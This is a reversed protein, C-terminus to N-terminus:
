KNFHYLETSNNKIKKIAVFRILFVEAPPSMPLKQVSEFCNPRPEIIYPSFCRYYCNIYNGSSIRKLLQHTPTQRYEWLFRFQRYRPDLVKLFGVTFAGLIIAWHWLYPPMWLHQVHLGPDLRPVFRQTDQIIKQDEWGSLHCVLVLFLQAKIWSSNIQNNYVRSRSGQVANLFRPRSANEEM